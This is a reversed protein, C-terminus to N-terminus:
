DRRIRSIKSGEVSVGAMLGRQGTVFAVVPDQVTTTSVDIGVGDEILAVSADAGLEFGRTRDLLALADETMFFLVQSYSQAGIQLGFSASAISYYGVSLGDRRLVGEGYQGGFGFGAKVVDPFVMVAVAQGAVARAAPSVALLGDLALDARADIEAADAAQAQEAVAAMMLGAAVLAALLRGTLWAM